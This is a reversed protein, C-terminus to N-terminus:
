GAPRQARIVALEVAPGTMRGALFNTPEAAIAIVAVAAPILLIEGVCNGAQLKVFDMDFHVATITMGVPIKFRLGVARIAVIVATCVLICRWTLNNYSSSWSLIRLIVGDQSESSRLVM